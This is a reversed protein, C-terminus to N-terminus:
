MCAAAGIVPGLEVAIDYLTLDILAGNIETGCRLRQNLGILLGQMWVLKCVAIYQNRRVLSKHDYILVSGM